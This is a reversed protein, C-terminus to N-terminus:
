KTGKLRDLEAELEEIKARRQKEQLEAEKRAAFDKIGQEMKERSCLLHAFPIFISNEVISTKSHTVYHSVNSAGWSESFNEDDYDYYVPSQHMDTKTHIIRVCLADPTGMPLFVVTYPASPITIGNLGNAHKRYFEFYAVVLNTLDQAANSAYVLDAESLFIFAM